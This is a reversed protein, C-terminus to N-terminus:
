GDKLRVSRIKITVNTFTKTQMQTGSKDTTEKVSGSWKEIILAYPSKEIDQIFLLINAYSESALNFVVSNSTWYEESINEAPAYSLIQIKHNLAFENIKEILRENSIPKPFKNIFEKIKQVAQDQEKVVDLKEKLGTIQGKLQKAQHEYKNYFFIIAFLTFGILLVNILIDPRNQIEERVQGLDIKKLDKIDIKSLENLNM